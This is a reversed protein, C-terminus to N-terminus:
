ENTKNSLASFIPFLNMQFTFAILCNNISSM